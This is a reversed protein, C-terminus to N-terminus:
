LLRQQTDFYWLQDILYEHGMQQCVQDVLTSIIRRDFLSSGIIALQTERNDLKFKVREVFLRSKELSMMFDISTHPAVKQFFTSLNLISKESFFPLPSIAKKDLFSLVRPLPFRASWLTLHSSQRALRALALLQQSKPNLPHLVVGDLDCITHIGGRNESFPRLSLAENLSSIKHIQNGPLGDRRIKELPRNVFQEKFM